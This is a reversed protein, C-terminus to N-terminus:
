PGRSLCVAVAPSPPAFVFFLIIPLGRALANAASVLGTVANAEIKNFAGGAPEKEKIGAKQAPVLSKMGEKVGERFVFPSDFLARFAM